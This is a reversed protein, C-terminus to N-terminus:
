ILNERILIFNFASILMVYNGVSLAELKLHIQLLFVCLACIIHGDQLCTGEIILLMTLHGPQGHLFQLLKSAYLKLKQLNM